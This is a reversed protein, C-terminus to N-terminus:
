EYVRIVCGGNQIQLLISGACVIRVGDKPTFLAHDLCFLIASKFELHRSFRSQVTKKQLHHSRTNILDSRTYM